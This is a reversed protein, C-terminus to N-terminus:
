SGPGLSLFVDQGHIFRCVLKLCVGWMGWEVYCVVSVITIDEFTGGLSEDESASKHKDTHWEM